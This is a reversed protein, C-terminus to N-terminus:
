WGAKGEDAPASQEFLRTVRGRDVKIQAQHDDLVGLSRYLCRVAMALAGYLGAHDGLSARRLGVTTGVIESVDQSVRRLLADDLGHSFGGTVLISRPEYALAVIAVLHALAEVIQRHLGGFRDPTALIQRADTIDIGSQQAYAVLGAGSVLDRIRIKSGPLNLRGFEGLRGDQARLIAGDIAAASGLGTGIALLSITDASELSGYRLEGLLALNSDNEVTVPATFADPLAAIFETGRIPPLNQSAVVRSADGSLAGPLGITVAGLADPRGHGHDLEAVRDAIWRALMPGDLDHPTQHHARAVPHGLLNAIVLRCRAGGLDVGCVRRAAANARIGVPPRGPGSLPELETEEVLGAARLEDVIRFVTARSLGSGASIQNRDLLGGSLVVSMVASRNATRTPDATAM